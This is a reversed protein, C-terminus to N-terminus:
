DTTAAAAARAATKLADYAREVEPLGSDDFEARAVPGRPALLGPAGPDGAVLLWPEALRAGSAPTCLLAEVLVLDPTLWKHAAAERGPEVVVDWWVAAGTVHLSRRDAWASGFEGDRVVVLLDVDSFADAAQGTLSGVLVVAAVWPPLPQAGFAAV